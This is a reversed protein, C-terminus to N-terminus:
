ESGHWGGFRGCASKSVTSVAVDHDMTEALGRRVALLGISNLLLFNRFPNILPRVSRSM